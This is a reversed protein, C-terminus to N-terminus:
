TLMDGLLRAMIGEKGFVADISKANELEQQIQEATPVSKKNTRNEEPM